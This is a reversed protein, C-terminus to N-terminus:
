ELLSLFRAKELAARVIALPIRNRLQYTVGAKPGDAGVMPVCSVYGEPIHTMVREKVIAAIQSPPLLNRGNNKKEEPPIGDLIYVALKYALRDLDELGFSEPLPGAPESLISAKLVNEDELLKELHLESCYPGRWPDFEQTQRGCVICNM